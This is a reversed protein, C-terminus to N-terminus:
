IEYEERLNLYKVKWNLMEKPKGKSKNYRMSIEEESKKYNDKFIQSKEQTINFSTEFNKM